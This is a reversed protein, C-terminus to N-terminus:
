CWRQHRPRSDDLATARRCGLAITPPALQPHGGSHPNGHPQGWYSSPKYPLMGNLHIIVLPVGIVWSVGMHIDHSFTFVIWWCVHPDSQHFISLFPSIAWFYDHFTTSISRMQKTESWLRSPMSSPLSLLLLRNSSVLFSLPDQANGLSPTVNSIRLGLTYIYIYVYMIMRVYTYVIYQKM